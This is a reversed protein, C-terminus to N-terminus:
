NTRAEREANERTIFFGYIPSGSPSTGKRFFHAREVKESTPRPRTPLELSRRRSFIAPLPFRPKAIPKESLMVRNTKGDM